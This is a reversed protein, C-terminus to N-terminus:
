RKNDSQRIAEHKRPKIHFSCHKIQVRNSHLSTVIGLRPTKGRPIKKMAQLDLLSEEEFGCTLEGGCEYMDCLIATTM